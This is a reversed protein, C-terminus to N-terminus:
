EGIITETYSYGDDSSFIYVCSEKFEVNGLYGVYKVQKNYKEEVNKQAASVTNIGLVNAFVLPVIVVAIAVIISAVVKSKMNNKDNLKAEFSPFIKLVVLFLAFVLFIYSSVAKPKMFCFLISALIATWIIVKSITDIKQEKIQEKNKVLKRGIVTGILTGVLGSWPTNLVGGYMIKDIIYLCVIVIVALSVIVKSCGENEIM